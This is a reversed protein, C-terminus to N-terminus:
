ADRAANKTLGTNPVPGGTDLRIHSSEPLYPSLPESHVPRGGNWSREWPFDPCTVHDDNELPITGAIRPMYHTMLSGVVNTVSVEDPALFAWGAEGLPGDGDSAGPPISGSRKPGFLMVRVVAGSGDDFSAWDFPQSGSPHDILARFARASELVDGHATDIASLRPQPRTMWGILKAVSNASPSNTGLDGAIRVFFSAWASVAVYFTQFFDVTTDYLDHQQKATPSVQGTLANASFTERVADVRDRYRLLKYMSERLHRAAQRQRPDLDCHDTYHM